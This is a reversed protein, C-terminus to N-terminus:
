VSESELVSDTRDVIQVRLDATVEAWLVRSNVKPFNRMHQLLTLADGKQNELIATPDDTKMARSYDACVALRPGDTAPGHFMLFLERIDHAELLFFFEQRIHHCRNPEHPAGALGAPGGPIYLRDFQKIGLGESLFEDVAGQLRGDSCAVVLVHPREIM